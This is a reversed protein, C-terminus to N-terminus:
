FKEEAQGKVKGASQTGTSKPRELRTSVADSPYDAGSAGGYTQGSASSMADMTKLESRLVDLRAVNELYDYLCREAFEFRM